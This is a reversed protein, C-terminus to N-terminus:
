PGECHHYVFGNRIGGEKIKVCLTGCFRSTERVYGDNELVISFGHLIVCADKVNPVIFFFTLIVCM